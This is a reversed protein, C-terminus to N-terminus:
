VESAAVGTTAALRHRSMSIGAAVIMIVIAIGRGGRDRAV